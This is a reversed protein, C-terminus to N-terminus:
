NRNKNEIMKSLAVRTYETIDLKLIEDAKFWGYRLFERSDLQMYEADYTRCIFSVSVIHIKRNNKIVPEKLAEM